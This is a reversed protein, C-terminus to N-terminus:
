HQPSLNMLHVVNLCYRILDRGSMVVEGDMDWIVGVM